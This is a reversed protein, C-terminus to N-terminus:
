GIKKVTASVSYAGVAGVESYSGSTGIEAKITASGPQAGSLDVTVTCDEATIANVSKEPGRVVVELAQTILQASMGAPINVTKFDTLNLTKTTLGEFKVGVEVETIGTENHIGAPMVIPFTLVQDELIEGLEVTGVKLEELDELIADSGTVQIKETSMTIITNKDNAGGGSVVDVKLTIEKVRQVKVSLNLKEVNTTVYQADVPEGQADCLAYIYEGVVTESKQDMDVDVVAQTIRKVVDEPGSLEISTYDVVANEKDAIFGEAVSGIYNLKVDVTKTLMKAVQLTIFDPDHKQVSIANNPINGPYSPTYSVLHEGPAAIGSVNAMVSLNSNNIGVLDSRNGKLRLTVTPADGIIMLGRETLISENQLVVPVDYYTEEYDPNVVNIVYFWLAFAITVSLLGALIKSKM